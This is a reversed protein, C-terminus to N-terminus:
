LARGRRCGFGPYCGRKRNSPPLSSSTPASIKRGPMTGESRPLTAVATLVAAPSLRSWPGTELLFIWFFAGLFTWLASRSFSLRSWSFSRKTSSPSMSSSSLCFLPFAHM